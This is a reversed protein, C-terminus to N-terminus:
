SAKQLWKTTEDQEDTSEAMVANDLGMSRWKDPTRMMKEADSVNQKAAVSQNM